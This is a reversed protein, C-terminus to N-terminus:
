TSGSDVTVLDSQIVNFVVPQKRQKLFNSIWLLVKDDIGHHKLKSLIGDHPVTDFVKSSDLVAIAIQSGKKNYASAIEHFTTILQHKVFGEQDSAM